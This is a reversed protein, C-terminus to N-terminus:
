YKPIFHLNQVCYGDRFVFCMECFLSINLVTALIILLVTTSFDRRHLTSCLLKFNSMNITNLLDQNTCM